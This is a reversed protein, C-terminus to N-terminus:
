LVDEPEWYFTPEVEEESTPLLHPVVDKSNQIIAKEELDELDNIIEQIADVEDPNLVQATKLKEQAEQLCQVYSM